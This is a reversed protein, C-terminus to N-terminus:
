INYYIFVNVSNNNMLIVPIWYFIPKNDGTWHWALTWYWYGHMELLYCMFYLSLSIHINHKLAFCYFHYQLGCYQLLFHRFFPFIGWISISPFSIIFYISLVSLFLMLNCCEKCNTSEIFGALFLSFEYSILNVVLNYCFAMFIYWRLFM